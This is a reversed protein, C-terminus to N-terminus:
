FRNATRTSIGVGALAESKFKGDTPLKFKGPGGVKEEKELDRSIEGIKQWARLRVEVIRQWSEFENGIRSVLSLHIEPGAFL